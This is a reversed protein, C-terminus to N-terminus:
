DWLSHQLRCVVSVARRKEDLERAPATRLRVARAEDETLQGDHLEDTALSLSRAKQLPSSGNTHPALVTGKAQPLTNGEGPKPEKGGGVRM